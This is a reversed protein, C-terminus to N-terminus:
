QGMSWGHWSFVFTTIQRRNILFCRCLHFDEFRTLEKTKCRTTKDSILVIRIKVYIHGRSLFRKGLFIADSQGSRGIVFYLLFNLAHFSPEYCSNHQITLGRIASSAM